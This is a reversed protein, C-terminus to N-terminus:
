VTPVLTSAMVSPESSTANTAPGALEGAFLALLLLRGQPPDMHISDTSRRPDLGLLIRITFESTSSSNNSLTIPAKLLLILGPM